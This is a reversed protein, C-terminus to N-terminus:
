DFFVNLHFCHLPLQELARPVQYFYNSYVEYQQSYKHLNPYQLQTSTRRLKGHLPDREGITYTNWSFTTFYSSNGWCSQVQMNILTSEFVQTILFYFYIAPAGNNTVQLSCFLIFRVSTKNSDSFMWDNLQNAQQFIYSTNLFVNQFEITEFPTRVALRSKTESIPKM